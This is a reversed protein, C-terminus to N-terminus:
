LTATDTIDVSIPFFPVVIHYLMDKIKIKGGLENIFTPRNTANRIWNAAEHSNMELVIGRNQLCTIPKLQLKPSELTELMDMADKLLRILDEKKTDSKISPHDHDPDLLIQREKIVAHAGTLDSTPNALPSAATTTKHHQVLLADHYPSPM